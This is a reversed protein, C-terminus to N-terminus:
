QKVLALRHKVELEVLEMSGVLEAVLKVLFIREAKLELELAKSFVLVILIELELGSSQYFCLGVLSSPVELWKIEFVLEQYSKPDLCSGLRM